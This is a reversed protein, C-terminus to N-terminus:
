AMQGFRASIEETTALLTPAHDLLNDLSAVRLPIWLSISALIRADFDRIPAAIGVVQYFEERDSIAYGRARTEAMDNELAEPTTLTTETFKELEAVKFYAAREEDTMHALFVKGAATNHLESQGGTKVALRYPHPIRTRIFTVTHESRVSLAVNMGTTEALNILDQDEILSIDMREWAARAWNILRHGTSYSRDREDYHVLDQGILISLIRHTSSKNFGTAVAIDTQTLRGQTNALLDIVAVSKAVISSQVERPM